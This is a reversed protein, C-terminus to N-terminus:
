TQDKMAWSPSPFTMVVREAENAILYDQGKEEGMLGGVGEVLIDGDITLWKEHAARIRGM